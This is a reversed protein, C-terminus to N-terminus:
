IGLQQYMPVIGIWNFANKDVHGHEPRAIGLFKVAPEGQKPSYLIYIVKQELISLDTSGDTPIFYYNTLLLYNVFSDKM